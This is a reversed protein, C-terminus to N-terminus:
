KFKGFWMGVFVFIGGGIQLLGLILAAILRFRSRPVLSRPSNWHWLALFVAAPATFFAFVWLVFTCPVLALALAVNDWLVRKSQFATENEKSRLHELCKLCVIQSGWKAAWVDSVLVGCHGCECTAKRAPSYFCAAEGEGPPDPPPPPKSASEELLAPLPLM